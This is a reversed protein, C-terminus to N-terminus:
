YDFGRSPQGQKLRKSCAGRRRLGRLGDQAHKVGQKSCQRNGGGEEFNSTKLKGM